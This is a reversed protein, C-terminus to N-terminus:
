AGADEGTVNQAAEISLKGASWFLFDLVKTESVFGHSDPYKDRFARRPAVLLDEKLIEAYMARLREHFAMYESLRVDFTKSTYPARFGFVSAIESDYIPCSSDVTSALKTAFSFQLSQQGKRNPIVFLARVLDRLDYVRSSRADELLAFYRLKFEATLGANDIRYFSRFVFQFVHNELVLGKSFEEALFRYVAISEPEIGAVIDEARAEFESLNLM